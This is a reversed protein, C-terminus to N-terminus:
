RPILFSAISTEPHVAADLPQKFLHRTKKGLIHFRLETRGECRAHFVSRLESNFRSTRRLWTVAYTNFDVIAERRTQRQRSEAVAHRSQVNRSVGEDESM